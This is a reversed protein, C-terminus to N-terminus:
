ECVISRCNVMSSHASGGDNVVCLLAHAIKQGLPNTLPRLEGENGSIEGNVSELSQAARQLRRSVHAEEVAVRQANAGHVGGAVFGLREPQRFIAAHRQM